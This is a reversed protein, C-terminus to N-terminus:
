ITNRLGLSEPYPGLHWQRDTYSEPNRRFCQGLLCSSTGILPREAYHM